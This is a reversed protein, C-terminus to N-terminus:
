VNETSCIIDVELEEEVFDWHCGITHTDSGAFLIAGLYDDKMWVIPSGSDGGASFGQKEFLACPGFLAIGRSYQVNGYYDNDILKAGETYGTTRGTKKALEGIEGRRKGKIPGIKDIKYEVEELPIVFKSFAIDVRNYPADVFVRYIKHFLNRYNCTFDNYKIEIYRWLTTITNAITGGDYRSPYIIEDGKGAKNELADCHNNGLKGVFQEEGEKKNIACITFTCATCDRHASSKGAIVPRNDSTGKSKPPIAYLKEVVVVDTCVDSNGTSLSSPIVDKASLCRIDEKKEVYVRFCQIDPIEKGDKIKAKLTGSFGQVNRKKRLEKGYKDILTLATDISYNEM